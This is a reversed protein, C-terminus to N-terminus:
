QRCFSLNPQGRASVSCNFLRSVLRVVEIHVLIWEEGGDKRFVRVLNDVSRVNTEKGSGPNLEALEKDLYIFRKQFDFVQDADPFVFRLLDDLVWQLVGKWLIDKNHGM